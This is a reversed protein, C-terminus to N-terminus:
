LVTGVGLRIPRPLSDTGAPGIFYYPAGNSNPPPGEGGGPPLNNYPADILM